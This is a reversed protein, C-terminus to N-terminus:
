GDEQAALLERARLALWFEMRDFSSSLDRGTLEEVKRMRYRLTHRHVFLEGAATEWRANHQLFARLSTTLEGNQELDYADLPALLSDAFARLADPESMSLLLRYTGLDEFGASSRGELRCVQLSYRAERLSRGVASPAVAGGSGLRVESGLRESVAARFPEGDQSQAPLLVHVGEEGRSVLYASGARSLQDEVAYALEEADGGEMSLVRVPEDRPFGYRALGRLVEPPDLTGTALSGLFDGQLRREAEAVARSKALEIAFLSLAHGAVIRDVQSPAEPKGVALFAEVRGHTGVPQIWVHHGHDMLTLSFGTGEPRSARVEDWLRSARQRGAEPSAAVPIGHLDVLVVWGGTVRALSACIGQIGEEEVVARTLQQEADFARQLVDYQEAVLRTFVAETIAIFPVPYPVEFLPFASQEAAAVLARPVRDHSFGLGFGLGALGAASLRRLYARQRAPTAGVGAGTTLLLEGGKLWPTPDELESAHVWRVPRDIAEEGAVLRLALGPVALIDRVTLGM